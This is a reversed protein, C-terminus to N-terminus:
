DCYIAYPTTNLAIIIIIMNKLPSPVRLRMSMIIIDKIQEQLLRASVLILRKFKNVQRTQEWCYTIQRQNLLAFENSPHHNTPPIQM